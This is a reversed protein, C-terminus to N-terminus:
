SGCNSCERPRRHARGCRHVLFEAVLQIVQCLHAVMEAVLPGLFGDKHAIQVDRGAFIIDPRMFLKQLDHRVGRDLHLMQARHLLGACPDINRPLINGVPLKYEHHDYRARSQSAASLPRLSSWIQALRSIADRAM